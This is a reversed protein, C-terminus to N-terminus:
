VEFIHGDKALLPYLINKVFSQGFSSELFTKDYLILDLKEGQSGVYLEPNIHIIFPHEKNRMVGTPLNFDCIFYAGAKTFKEVEAKNNM